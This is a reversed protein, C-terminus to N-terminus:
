HARAIKATATCLLQPSTRIYGQYASSRWRGLTKVLHDSLGAAVASTAAGIWYSHSSYSTPDIGAMSLLSKTVDSVNRRTLFKGSTLTFLPGSHRHPHEGLYKRMATVPCTSTGTAGILVMATRGFRDTKSHKLTLRISDDRVTIDRHCLHTRSCYTTSTPATYESARLFWLLGSHLSGLVPAQRQGPPTLPGNGAQHYAPHGTHHSEEEKTCGGEHAQYRHM